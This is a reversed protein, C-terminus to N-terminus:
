EKNIKFKVSLDRDISYKTLVERALEHTKFYPFQSIYTYFDKWKGRSAKLKPTRHKKGLKYSLVKCCTFEHSEVRNCKFCLHKSTIHDFGTNYPVQITLVQKQKSKYGKNKKM